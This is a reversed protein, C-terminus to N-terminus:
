TSEVQNILNLRKSKDFYKRLGMAGDSGRRKTIRIFRLPQRMVKQKRYYAKNYEELAMYKSVFDSM